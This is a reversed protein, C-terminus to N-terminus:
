VQISRVADECAQQCRRCQEACLRCHEHEGAHRACEEACLRCATACAQLTAVITPENSGTRRSGVIGGVTCVDACDLNLRICQRLHDVTSEALCADACAICTQACRYCEEICQILADNTSGRVDPHNAIMDRVTPMPQEKEDCPQM